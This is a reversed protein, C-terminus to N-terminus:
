ARFQLNNRVKRWEISRLQEDTKIENELQKVYLKWWYIAPIVNGCHKELRYVLENNPKDRGNLIRSLKTPHLDIEAAFDKQSRDVLKIYQELQQAFSFEKEFDSRELYDKILLKMRMLASLLRQEETTEKLAQLRLARFEAEIAEKEQEDL